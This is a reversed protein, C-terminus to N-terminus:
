IDLSVMKHIVIGGLIQAVLAGGIITAGYASELLPTFYDPDRMKLILALFIPLAFMVFGSLKGEATLASIEGAIRMRERITEAITDLIEALNGGVQMNIVVAVVILELDRSGVHEVIRELADEVAIGLSAQGLVWAFEEAVPGNMEDVVLKVARLFSHGSRMSSAILAMADPIQANFKRRRGAQAMRMALRPAYAGMVGLAVIGVVHGTLLFGLLGGGLAAGACVALWEGPRMKWGAQRIALWLQQELGKGRLLETLFPSQDSRVTAKAAAENKDRKDGERLPMSSPLMAGVEHSIRGAPPAIRELRNQLNGAPRAVRGCCVYVLGSTVAFILFTLIVLM